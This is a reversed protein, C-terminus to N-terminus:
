GEGTQTRRKEQCGYGSWLRLRSYNWVSGISGRAWSDEDAGAITCVFFLTIIEVFMRGRQQEFLQLLNGKQAVATAVALVAGFALQGLFLWLLQDGTLTM